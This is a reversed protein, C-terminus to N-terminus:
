KDGITNNCTEYLHNDKMITIDMFINHIVNYLLHLSFIPYWSRKNIRTLHKHKLSFTILTSLNKKPM